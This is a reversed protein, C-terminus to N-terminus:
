VPTGQGSELAGPRRRLGQGVMGERGAQAFRRKAVADRRAVGREGDEGRAVREAVEFPGLSGEGLQLDAARRDAGIRSRVQEPLKAPGVLPHALLVARTSGV